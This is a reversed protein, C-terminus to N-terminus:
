LMYSFMVGISDQRMSAAGNPEDLDDINSIGAPYFPTDGKVTNKFAHVYSMTWEINPSQRYTFGLTAHHEVVAPALMNFLIQNDPMPAKGYNYGVRFTWTPDYEYQVGVKYVVQSQWGFGMGKDKGLACTNDAPSTAGPPSTCGFSTPFFDSTNAPDPGPNAVSRIDSYNIKELDFLLTLKDTPRLALGLAYNEPIDFSGQEAFLGKYKDFKTMYVRSSYNLGISVRKNFFHGLWGLRVGAGYSYDNGRNSLNERDSTFNLPSGPAGMAQLGYARFQQAALAISFGVSQNKTLQYAVTPLVQMQILNVGATPGGFCNYNFFRSGTTNPDGDECVALSQDFRTNSGAGVAAMGITMRRNFKYAGGMAPILFLNSGSKGTYDGGLLSSNHNVKRPPNFLDASIDIRMAKMDLDSLTAPNAAASLVDNGIAVSAGGLARAKSGYGILFYGNTAYGPMSCSVAATFALIRAFTQKSQILAM